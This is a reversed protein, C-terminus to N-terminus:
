EVMTDISACRTAQTAGLLIRHTCSVPPPFRTTTTPSSSPLADSEPHESSETQNSSSSVRALYIESKWRNTANRSRLRGPMTGVYVSPFKLSGRRNKPVSRRVGLQRRRKRRPICELTAAVLRDIRCANGNVCKPIRSTSTGPGM